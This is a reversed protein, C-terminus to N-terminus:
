KPGDRGRARKAAAAAMMRSGQTSQGQMNSSPGSMAAHGRKHVREQGRNDVEMGQLGQLERQEEEQKAAAAEKLKNYALQAKQLEREARMDMMDATETLEAKRKGAM